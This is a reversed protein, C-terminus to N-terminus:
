YVFVFTNGQLIRATFHDWKVMEEFTDLNYELEETQCVLGKLCKGM